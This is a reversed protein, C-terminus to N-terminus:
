LFAKPPMNQKKPDWTWSQGGADKTKQYTVSSFAYPRKKAEENMKKWAAKPSKKWAAETTSMATIQYKVSRLISIAETACITVCLVLSARM